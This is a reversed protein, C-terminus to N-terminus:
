RTPPRLHSIGIQFSLDDLRDLAGARVAVRLGRPDNLLDHVRVMGDAGLEGVEVADTGVAVHPVEEALREAELLTVALLGLVRLRHEGAEDMQLLLVQDLARARLALRVGDEDRDVFHGAALDEGLHVLEARHGSATVLV